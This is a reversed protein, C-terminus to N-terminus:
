ESSDYHEIHYLVMFGPSLVLLIGAVLSIAVFLRKVM